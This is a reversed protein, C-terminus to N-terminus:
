KLKPLEGPIVTWVAPDFVSRAKYCAEMKNEYVFTTDKSVDRSGETVTWDLSVKGDETLM